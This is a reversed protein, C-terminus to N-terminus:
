LILYVYLLLCINEWKIFSYLGEVTNVTNRINNRGKGKKGLIFSTLKYSYIYIHFFSLDLVPSHWENRPIKRFMECKEFESAWQWLVM